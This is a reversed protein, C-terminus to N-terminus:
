RGLFTSFTTFYLAFGAVNKDETEALLVKAAPNPGFLHEKVVEKKLVVQDLLQV